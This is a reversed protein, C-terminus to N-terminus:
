CKKAAPLAYRWASATRALPRLCGSTPSPSSPAGCPVSRGVSALDLHKLEGAAGVVALTRGDPLFEAAVAQITLCPRRSAVEWVRWTNAADTAMLWRSGQSFTVTQLAPTPQDGLLTALLRGTAFDWLKLEGERQPDGTGRGPSGAASALLQGDPSFAVANVWYRHEFMQLSGQCLRDLYYWEWGRRDPQGEMPLCKNLLLRAGAVNDGLYEREALAIRTENLALESQQRLESETERASKELNARAQEAEARARLAILTWSLSGLALLVALVIASALVLTIRRTKQEQAAKINAQVTALEAAHLREQVSRLYATVERAVVGANQPREDMENTLCRKTLGVLEPDADCGALRAWADRLDGRRAKRQVEASDAGVYPPKGTLLECLIAGLCFVDSREDLCDVEGLAQEPPMYALTGLVSGARTRGCDDVPGDSSDSRVTRIVSLDAPSSGVGPDGGAGGVPTLVKALGWDMVQVEGFPGVMVNAPKLDRHIVRRSHVYALTQCVQDFIGLFRARDRRPDTCEGLLAALTRGKVLKMAIFPRGDPFRGLELVPPIGPHQLQGGIQAEEIFRQVIATNNQHEELLVKVALDRGLVTDHARLVSGMGGRAIEEALRYRGEEQGRSKPIEAGARNSTVTRPEKASGLALEGVLALENWVQRILDADDPWRGAYAECTPSEGRQRRYGVELPLLERLLSTRGEPPAAALFDELAPAEGATWRAEFRECLQDIQELAELPLSDLSDPQPSTM